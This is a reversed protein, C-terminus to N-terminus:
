PLAAWLRAGRLGSAWASAAMARKGDPKIELVELSGEACGLYVRGSRVCVEGAALEESSTRVALIRVGRAGVRCRAPATDGSAQVRARNARATDAPDLFLESKEIKPAYTVLAEDQEIWVAEGRALRDLAAILEGAGLRALEGTLVATSKGDIPISAQACYAGADLDHVVRMISVGAVPDGALIARQIPAAGRWRPLLSAHVNVCGLPAIGLLADPLIAGYAAVAIVDPRLEEVLGIEDAAIRTCEHVPLGLERARLKVPSPEPSRGRSRVADPRTLVAVVEHHAALAELSPVAFAPTGMFVVRM